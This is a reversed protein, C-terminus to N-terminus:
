ISVHSDGGASGEGTIQAAAAQKGHDLRVTPGAARIRDRMLKPEVGRATVDVEVALIEVVLNAGQAAQARAVGAEVAPKDGFLEADGIREVWRDGASDGGAHGRALFVVIGDSLRNASVIQPM